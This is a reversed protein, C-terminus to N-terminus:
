SWNGVSAFVIWHATMIRDEMVNTAARPLPPDAIGSLYLFYHEHRRNTAM